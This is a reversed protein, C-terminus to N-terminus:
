QKRWPRSAYESDPVVVVQQPSTPPSAPPTAALTLPANSIAPRPPAGSCTVTQNWQEFMLEAVCAGKSRIAYGSGVLDWSTLDLRRGEADLFAFM